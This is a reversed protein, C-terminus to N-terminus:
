CRFPVFAVELGCVNAGHVCRLFLDFTLSLILFAFAATTTTTTTTVIASHPSFVHQLLLLLRLLTPSCGGGVVCKLMMLFLVNVGVLVVLVSIIGLEILFLWLRDTPPAATQHTSSNAM